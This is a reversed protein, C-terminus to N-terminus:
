RATYPDGENHRYRVVLQVLVGSGGDDEQTIVSDGFYADVAKGSFGYWDSATRIAKCVDASFQNAYTDKATPDTESTMCRCRLNFITEQGVAPPNSPIDYAEFPRTEGQNVVVQWDRPRYGGFRTPEAVESITTNEVDDILLAELRTVITTRISEVVAVPM